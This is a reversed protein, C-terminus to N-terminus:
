KADPYLATELYECLLHIIAIHSEQIHSTVKSDVIVEHSAVGKAKGGGKGLLTVTVCGKKKAAALALLINESNGSTTIGVLVDKPTMLADVQREFASAFGVDNSWCTLTGPDMLHHAPIGPRKRLYIAVLEEVFHMADCTSGGNGCTYIRGGSRVAEVMAKGIACIAPAHASVGIKVQASANLYERVFQEPDAQMGAM